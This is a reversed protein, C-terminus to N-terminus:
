IINCKKKLIDIKIVVGTLFNTKPISKAFPRLLKHPRGNLQRKQELSCNTVALKFTVSELSQLKTFKVWVWKCEILLWTHFCFINLLLDHAFISQVAKEWFCYFPILLRLQSNLYSLILYRFRWEDNVSLVFVFSFIPPICFAIVERQELHLWTVAASPRWQMTVITTQYDVLLLWISWYIKKEKNKARAGRGPNFSFRGGEAM